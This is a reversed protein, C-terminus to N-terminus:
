RGCNHKSDSIYILTVRQPHMLKGYQLLHCLEWDYITILILIHQLSKITNYKITIM